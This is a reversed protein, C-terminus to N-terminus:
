ESHDCVNEYMYIKSEGAHLWFLNTLPPLIKVGAKSRPRPPSTKCGGCRTKPGRKARDQPLQKAFGKQGCKKCVPLGPKAFLLNLIDRQSPVSAVYNTNKSKILKDNDTMTCAHTHFIRALSNKQSYIFFVLPLLRGQGTKCQDSIVTWTVFAYIPPPLLVPWIILFNNGLTILKM